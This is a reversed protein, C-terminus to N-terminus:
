NDPFLRQFTEAGIVGDAPLDQSKQFAKVATRTSRGFISDVTGTYHGLEQLRKQIREVEPGKAWWTYHITQPQGSESQTAAAVVGPPLVDVSTLRRLTKKGTVGDARLGYSSQFTRVASKTEENFVGDVPGTYHGLEQLRKQIREVEPGQAGLKYRRSLPSSPEVAAAPTPTSAIEQATTRAASASQEEEKGEAQAYRPQLATLQKDVKDYLTQLTALQQELKTYLPQLDALRQELRAYEDQVVSNTGTIAPTNNTQQKKLEQLGQAINQEMMSVSTVLGFHSRVGQAGIVALWLTIPIGLFVSLAKAWTAPETRTPHTAATNMGRGYRLGRSLALPCSEQYHHLNMQTPAPRLDAGM